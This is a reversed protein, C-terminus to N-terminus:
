KERAATQKMLFRSSIEHLDRKCADPRTSYEPAGIGFARRREPRRSRESFQNKSERTVFSAM